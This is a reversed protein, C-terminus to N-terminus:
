ASAGGFSVAELLASSEELTESIIEALDSEPIGLKEFVAPDAPYAFSGLGDDGGLRACVGDAVHVIEVLRRHEPGAGSPVHYHEIVARLAPGLGFHVAVRVGLECHTVGIQEKEAALRAAATGSGAGLAAIQASPEFLEALVAKGIDHLLGGTYAVAVLEDSGVRDGRATCCRGDEVRDRLAECRTRLGFAPGADM